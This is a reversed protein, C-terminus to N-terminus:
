RSHNLSTEASQNTWFTNLPSKREELPLCWIAFFLVEGNTGPTPPVWAEFIMCESEELGLLRAVHTMRMRTIRLCAGKAVQGRNKKRNLALVPFTGIAAAGAGVRGGYGFCCDAGAGGGTGGAVAVIGCWGAYRADVSRM